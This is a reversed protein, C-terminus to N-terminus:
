APKYTTVQYRPEMTWDSSCLHHCCSMIFIRQGDKNIDSGCCSVLVAKVKRFGFIESNILRRTSWTPTQFCLPFILQWCAHIVFRQVTRSALMTGPCSNTACQAEMWSVQIQTRYLCKKEFLRLM